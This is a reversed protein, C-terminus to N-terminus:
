RPKEPSPFPDSVPDVPSGLAGGLLAYLWRANGVHHGWTGELNRNSFFLPDGVLLLGGRGVSRHLAIVLDGQQYLVRDGPQPRERLIPWADLFRPPESGTPLADQDPVTGLPTAAIGLGLSALLPRVGLGREHGAAVVLQGGREMFARYSAVEGSSLVRAPAVLSIVDGEGLSAVDAPGQHVLFGARHAYTGLPGISNMGAEFHGIWPQCATDIVWRRGVLPVDQVAPLALSVALAWTAGTTAAGVVSWRLALILLALTGLVWSVRGLGPHTGGLWAFVPLVHGQLTVPLASNQFPSTDGYVLLRGAGVRRGAVLTLDGAAEGPDHAYNGLFSGMVNSRLGLDSFAYRGSVLREVSPDCSLSAGVSLHLQRAQRLDPLGPWPAVAACAEWPWRLPYASDFEFRIGYEELLSNLGSQLGFVDTHDGLVLVSGGDELFTRVVLREETTWIRPANIVVFVDVGDLDAAGLPAAETASCAMGAAELSVPLLGFMGGSFAGYDGFRPRHWDLGGENLFRVSRPLDAAAPSWAAGVLGCALLLAAAALRPPTRLPEPQPQAPGSASTGLATLAALGLTVGGLSSIVPLLGEGAAPGVLSRHAHLIWLVLAALAALGARRGWTLLCATLALLLPPLGLLTPGMPQDGTLASVQRAAWRLPEGLWPVASVLAVTVPALLLTRALGDAGQILLAAGAVGAWVAGAEPAWWALLLCTTVAAGRGWGRRLALPLGVLLLALIATRRPLESAPGAWGMRFLVVGTVAANWLVGLWPSPRRAPDEPGTPPVASPPSASATM